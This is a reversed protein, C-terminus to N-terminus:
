RGSIMLFGSDDLILLEGWGVGQVVLKEESAEGFMIIASIVKVNLKLSKAVSGYFKLAM